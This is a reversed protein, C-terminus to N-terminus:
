PLPLRVVTSGSVVVLESPLDGGGSVLAVAPGRWVPPSITCMFSVIARGTTSDRLTILQQDRSQPDQPSLYHQGDPSRLWGLGPLTVATITADPGVSVEDSGQVTLYALSRSSPLVATAVSEVLRLSGTKLDWLYARFPTGLLGYPLNEDDTPALVFREPDSTPAVAVYGKPLAHRTVSGFDASVRDLEAVGVVLYGGNVTARFGMGGWGNTATAPRLLPAVKGDPSIVIVGAASPAIVSQGDSAIQFDQVITDLTADTRWIGDSPNASILRQQLVDCGVFHDVLLVVRPGLWGVAAYNTTDTTACKAPGLTPIAAQSPTAHDEVSSQEPSVTALRTATPLPTPSAAACGVVTFSLSVSAVWRLGSRLTM